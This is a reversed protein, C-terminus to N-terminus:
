KDNKQEANFQEKAKKRNYKKKDPVVKTSTRRRSEAMVKAIPNIRKIMTIVTL